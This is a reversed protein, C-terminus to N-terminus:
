QNPKEITLNEIGQVTTEPPKRIFFYILGFIIGGILLIPILAVILSIVVYILLYIIWFAAFSGTIMNVTKNAEKAQPQQPMLCIKGFMFLLFLAWIWPGILLYLVSWVKIGPLYYLLGLNFFIGSIWSGRNSGNKREQYQGPTEKYPYVRGNKAQYSM